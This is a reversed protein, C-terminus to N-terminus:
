NAQGAARARLAETGAILIASFGCADGHWGCSNCSAQYIRARLEDEDVVNETPCSAFLEHMGCNICRFKLTYGQIKGTTM